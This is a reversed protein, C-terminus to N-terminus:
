HLIQIIQFIERRFCVGLFYYTAIERHFRWKKNYEKRTKYSKCHKKRRPTINRADRHLSSAPRKCHAQVIKLASNSFILTIKCGSFRLDDM